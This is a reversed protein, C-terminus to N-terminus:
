DPSTWLVFCAVILGQFLQGCAVVNRPPPEQGCCSRVRDFVNANAMSQYKARPCASNESRLPSFPLLFFLGIAENRPGGTNRPSRGRQQHAGMQLPRDTETVPALFPSV